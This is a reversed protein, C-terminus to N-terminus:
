FDWDKTLDIVQGTQLSKHIALTAVTTDLIEDMTFPMPKNNIVSEMFAEIEAKQGKDIGQFSKNHRKNAQYFSNKRFNDMVASKSGGHIELYEKPVKNGGQTLYQLNAISGNQYEIIASINDFDDHSESQPSLSRAYVNTPRSQFIYSITDIFHGGEGVFRTGESSDLYWSGKDMQGAHIRYNCIFPIEKRKNWFGCISKIAKSFRRNFGVQLRNNGTEIITDRIKILDEIQIALPKEVFIAKYSKLSEIVMGAHTKHRTTIFVADIQDDQIIDQYYTTSNLFGFKRVANQSSLATATAVMGLKIDPNRHLHPLLMSSAYNGAGIFGVNITSKNLSEYREDIKLSVLKDFSQTIDYRFLVGIGQLNGEALKKFINAADEFPFIENTIQPLKIHRRDILNLFSEMNRQETWRVYGIPYDIGGEEYNSDYRGPGYSRSFRVDLEKEYYTKWDLDIKTKGIIVVKARDRAIDVALEIPGNSNGGSTIFVCDVGRGKTLKHIRDILSSDSPDTAYVMGLSEAIHCKSKDLDVGIVNIGASRLIQSLLQGLLGLGIVCAYEDVMMQAQRYGQMAIAGVTTYAADQFSVNDPIKVMLNKPVYNLEAHNAYGAGACAVRDGKKFDTNDESVSEVVGSLSYGLPTLSDLKNMVKEYTAKLGQQKISQIVKKVQDPRARAKGLYSLKGERAKMGETGLSILSYHTRVLTGGSKLAPIKVEELKIEGNKYNQTIQKM